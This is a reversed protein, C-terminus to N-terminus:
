GDLSRSLLEIVDAYRDVNEAKFIVAAASVRRAV